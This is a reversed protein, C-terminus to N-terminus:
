SKQCNRLSKWFYEILCLRKRGGIAPIQKCIKSLCGRPLRKVIDENEILQDFLSKQKLGPQNSVGNLLMLLNGPLRFTGQVSQKGQLEEASISTGRKFHSFSEAGTM